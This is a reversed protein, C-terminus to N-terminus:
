LTSGPFFFVCVMCRLACHFLHLSHWTGYECLHLLLFFYLIWRRSAICGEIRTENLFVDLQDNKLPNGLGTYPSLEKVSSSSM